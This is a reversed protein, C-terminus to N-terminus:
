ACRDGLRELEDIPGYGLDWEKLNFEECRLSSIWISNDLLLVRISTAIKHHCILPRGQRACEIGPDSRDDIRKTATEIKERRRESYAIAFFRAAFRMERDEGRDLGHKIRQM